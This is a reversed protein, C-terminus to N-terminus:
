DKIKIRSQVAKSLFVALAMKVLDPVIYPFVCKGLVVLASIDGTNKLYVVKYWVTGFAYLIVTGLILAIFMIYTKKGFKDILLGSILALFVFGVVYGGTAGLLAGIGGRFGSLVPAGVAALLLYVTTSILGKKMGLMCVTMYVAFTQFTIPIDGLPITIWSCVAILATMMAVSAVSLATSKKSKSKKQEKIESKETIETKEM